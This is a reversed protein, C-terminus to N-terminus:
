SKLVAISHCYEAFIDDNLEFDAEVLILQSVTIVFVALLLESGLQKKM